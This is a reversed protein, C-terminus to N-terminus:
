YSQPYTSPDHSIRRRRKDNVVARANRTGGRKRLIMRYRTIEKDYWDRYRQGQASTQDDDYSALESCAFYFIARHLITPVGGYTTTSPDDTSGSLATPVPVNYVVLTDGTGPAPYFMLLNAGSMAYYRVPSGSTQGQRRRELLDIISLRELPYTVGSSSLQVEVIELIASDLTYNQSTGDWGTYDTEKVYCHTDELVRQVAVNIADDITTKENTVSLGLENACATEFQTLNV